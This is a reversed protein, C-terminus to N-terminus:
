KAGGSAAMGQAPQVAAARKKMLQDRMSEPVDQITGERSAELARVYATIAWADRENVAHGYAPMNMKGDGAGGPKGWRITHFIWGDQSRINKPDYFTPDYFNAPTPNFLASVTGKADGLYGHCATCYINFREEGRRLLAADVVVSSPIRALFVPKGDKDYGSIGEYFQQDSKLLDSRKEKWHEAWPETPVFGATGFAVTGVVPKRMSRADSYFDTKTQPKWKPSDDLDPFFQRPPADERDGRCGSVVGAVGVGLGVFLLTRTIQNMTM